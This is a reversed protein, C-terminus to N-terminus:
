PEESSSTSGLGEVLGVVYDLQADFARADVRDRHLRADDGDLVQGVLAAEEHMGRVLLRKAAGFLARTASPRGASSKSTSARSM